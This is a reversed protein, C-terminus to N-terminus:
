LLNPVAQAKSPTVIHFTSSVEWLDSFGSLLSYGENELQARIGSYHFPTPAPVCERILPYQPAFPSSQKNGEYVHQYLQSLSM